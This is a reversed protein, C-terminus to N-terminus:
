GNGLTPKSTEGDVELPGCGGAAGRGIAECCTSAAVGGTCSVETSLGVSPETRGSRPGVGVLAGRADDEARLEEGPLTLAALRRVGRISSEGGPAWESSSSRVAEAATPAVRREEAEM